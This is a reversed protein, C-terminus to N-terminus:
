PHPLLTSSVLWTNPIHSTSNVGGRGQLGLHLCLFLWGRQITDWRRQGAPYSRVKHGWLWASGPNVFPDRGEVMRGGGVCLVGQRRSPSLHLMTVAPLSDCLKEKRRKREVKRVQCRTGERERVCVGKLVWASYILQGDACAGLGAKWCQPSRSLSPKPNREVHTHVSCTSLRTLM